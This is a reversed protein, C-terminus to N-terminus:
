LLKLENNCSVLSLNNEKILRNAKEYMDEKPMNDRERRKEINIVIDSFAILYLGM